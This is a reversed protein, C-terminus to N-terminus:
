LLRGQSRIHRHPEARRHSLHLYLEESHRYTNGGSERREGHAPLAASFLRQARQGHPPLVHAPLCAAGELIAEWHDQELRIRISGEYQGGAEIVSFSIWSTSQQGLWIRSRPM